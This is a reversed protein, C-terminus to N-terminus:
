TPSNSIYDTLASRVVSSLDVGRTEAVKLTAQWESEPAAIMRRRLESPKRTQPIKKRRERSCRIMRALEEEQEPSMPPYPCCETCHHTLSYQMRWRMSHCDGHLRSYDADEREWRAQEADTFNMTGRFVWIEPDRLPRSCGPCPEGARYEDYTLAAANGGSVDLDIM